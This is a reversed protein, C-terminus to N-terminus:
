PRAILLSSLVRRCEHSRHVCVRSLACAGCGQRYMLGASRRYLRAPWCRPGVPLRDRVRHSSGMTEGVYAGDDCISSIFATFQSTLQQTVVAPFQLDDLSPLAGELDSAQGPNHLAAECPKAAIASEAFVVFVHDLRRLSQDIDCGDANHEVSEGWRSFKEFM